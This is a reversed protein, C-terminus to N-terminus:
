IKASPMTLTMSGSIRTSSILWGNQIGRLVTRGDGCTYNKSHGVVCKTKGRCCSGSFSCVVGALRGRTCQSRQICRQLQPLEGRSVLVQSFQLWSEGDFQENANFMANSTVAFKIIKEVVGYLFGLSQSEKGTSTITIKRTIAEFTTKNTILAWSKL